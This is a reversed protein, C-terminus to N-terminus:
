APRATFKMCEPGIGREISEPVTLLRHCRGCHGDHWFEASTPMHKAQFCECVWEWTRFSKSDRAVKSKDTWRFGRGDKDMFGIYSYDSTNQPGTLVSVFFVKGDKSKKVRFTLRNGTAKSVVTLHARGALTFEILSEITNLQHEHM